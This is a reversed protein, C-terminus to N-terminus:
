AAISFPISCLSFLPVTAYGSKQQCLTGVWAASICMDMKMIHVDINKYHQVM